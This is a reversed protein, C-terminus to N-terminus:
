YLLSEALELLVGGAPGIALQFVCKSNLFHFLGSRAPLETHGSSWSDGWEGLAGTSPGCDQM